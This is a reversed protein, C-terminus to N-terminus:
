QGGECTGSRQAVAQKMADRERREADCDVWAIEGELTAQKTRLLVLTDLAFVKDTDSMEASLSILNSIATGLDTVMQQAENRHLVRQLDRRSV